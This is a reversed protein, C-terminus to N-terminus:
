SLNLSKSFKQEMLLLSKKIEIDPTFGGIGEKAVVRHCPIILPTPNRKMANGVLRPNTKTIEAIESYTKTIGYPIKSVERYIKSYPYDSELAVSTLPSIGNVKGNLYQRLQLPIDAEEGTRSFSVKHVITGAWTVHIWWYGFQFAGRRMEM